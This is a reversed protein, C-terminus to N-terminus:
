RSASSTPQAPLKPETGDLYSLILARDADNLTVKKWREMKAVAAKWEDPTRSSPEYAAHCATCRKEYLREGDTVPARPRGDGCAAFLSAAALVFILKIRM